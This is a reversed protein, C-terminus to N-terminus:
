LPLGRMRRRLEARFNRVGRYDSPTDPAFVSGIMDPHEFRWHGGRTKAVSFGGRQLARRLKRMESGASM